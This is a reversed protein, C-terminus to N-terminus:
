KVKEPINFKATERYVPLDVLNLFKHNISEGSDKKFSKEQSVVQKGGSFRVRKEYVFPGGELPRGEEFDFASSSVQRKYLFVLKGKKEYCFVRVSLWDGSRSFVREVYSVVEGKYIKFIGKIPYGKKEVVGKFYKWGDGPYREQVTYRTIYGYEKEYDGKKGYCVSLESKLDIDEAYTEGGLGVLFLGCLILKITKGYNKNM